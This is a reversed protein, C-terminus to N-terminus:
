KNGGELRSKSNQHFLLSMSQCFFIKKLFSDFAESRGRFSLTGFFTLTSLICRLKRTWKRIRFPFFFSDWPPFVAVLEATVSGSYSAPDTLTTQCASACHLEFGEGLDWEDTEPLILAAIM